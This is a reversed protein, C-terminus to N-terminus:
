NNQTALVLASRRKKLVCARRLRHCNRILEAAQRDLDYAKGTYYKWQMLASVIKYYLYSLFRKIRM